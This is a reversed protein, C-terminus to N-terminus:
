SPLLFSQPHLRWLCALLMRNRGKRSVHQLLQCLRNLVLPFIRILDIMHRRDPSQRVFQHWRSKTMCRQQMRLFIPQQLDTTLFNGCLWYREMQLWFMLIFRYCISLAFLWKTIEVVLGSLLLSLTNCCANWGVKKVLLETRPTWVSSDVMSWNLWWILCISPSLKWFTKHM